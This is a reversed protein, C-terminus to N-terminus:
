PINRVWVRSASPGAYGTFQEPNQLLNVYQASAEESGCGQEVMDIWDDDREKSKSYTGTNRHKMQGDEYLAPAGTGTGAASVASDSCLELELSPEEIRARVTDDFSSSVRVRGLIDDHGTGSEFGFVSQRQSVWGYLQSASESSEKEVAKDSSLATKIVGDDQEDVNAPWTYPLPVEKEDCVCVSCGELM